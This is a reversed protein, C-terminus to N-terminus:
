LHPLIISRSLVEMFNGLISKIHDKIHPFIKERRKYKTLEFTKEYSCVPHILDVGGPQSPESLNTDIGMIKMFEEYSESKKHVVSYFGLDFTKRFLSGYIEKFVEKVARPVFSYGPMFGCDNIQKQSHSPFSFFEDNIDQFTSINKASIALFCEMKKNGSNLTFLNTGVTQPNFSHDGKLKEANSIISSLSVIKSKRQFLYYYIFGNDVALCIPENIEFFDALFAPFCLYDMLEFAYYKLNTSCVTVNFVVDNNGLHNVEEVNYTFAEQDQGITMDPHNQNTFKEFLEERIGEILLELEVLKNM